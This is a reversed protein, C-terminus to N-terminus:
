HSTSYWGRHGSHSVGGLHSWLYCIVLAPLISCTPSTSMCVQSVTLSEQFYSSFGWLAPLPKKPTPYLLPCLIPLSTLFPVLNLYQSFFTTPSWSPDPQLSTWPHSFWSMLSPDSLTRSYVLLLCQNRWGMNGLCETHWDNNWVIPACWLVLYFSGVRISSVPQHMLLTKQKHYYVIKGSRLFM